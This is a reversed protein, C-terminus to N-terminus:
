EEIKSQYNSDESSIVKDLILEATSSDIDTLVKSNVKVLPIGASKYAEVSFNDPKPLKKFNSPIHPVTKLVTEVVSGHKVHVEESFRIPVFPKKRHSDHPILHFM